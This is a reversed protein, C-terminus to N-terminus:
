WLNTLKDMSIGARATESEEAYIGAHMTHTVSTQGYSYDLQVDPSLMDRTALCASWVRDDRKGHVHKYRMMGSPTYDRELSLLQSIFEPDDVLEIGRKECLIKFNTILIEKEKNTFIIPTVKAGFLRWMDEEIRVGVGTADIKIETVNFDANLRAIHKLQTMGPLNFDYPMHKLEDQLRIKVMDGCREAITIATSSVKKGFDIGMVVENKSDLKTLYKAEPNIVPDLLDRTFFALDDSCPNCCYEQKFDMELMSKSMKKIMRSYNKDPCKWWPIEHKSYEKNDEWVEWFQNARGRPTSLLTMEGGRSISPQIAALIEKDNMISAFEDVYVKNARFGRITRDNNPLSLIRSKNLFSIETMSQTGLIPKVPLGDLLSYVYKLIRKAAEEGSSVFLVTMHPKLLAETLGECAIVFSYGMQRAKMIIRFTSPDLIFDNQYPYLRLPVGEFTYMTNIFSAIFQRENVNSV